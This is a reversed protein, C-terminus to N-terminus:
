VSAAGGGRGRLDPWIRCLGGGPGGGGRFEGWSDSSEKTGNESGGGAQIQFTGASIQVYSGASIGDGEAEVAITGDSIYVFGLSTDEDNEAHIGDKGATVTLQSDGTIRISDNIGRFITEPM